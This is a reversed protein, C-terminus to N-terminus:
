ARAQSVMRRRLYIVVSVMAPLHFICVEFVPDLFMAVFRQILFVATSVALMVAATTRWAGAESPKRSSM